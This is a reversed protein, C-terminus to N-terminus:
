HSVKSEYVKIHQYLARVLTRCEDDSLDDVSTGTLKVGRKVLIKMMRRPGRKTRLLQEVDDHARPVLHVVKALQEPCM